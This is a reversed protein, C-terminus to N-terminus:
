GCSGGIVDSMGAAVRAAFVECLDPMIACFMPAATEFDAAVQGTLTEGWAIGQTLTRRMDQAWVQSNGYNGPLAQVMDPVQGDWDPIYPSADQVASLCPALGASIKAAQQETLAGLAAQFASPQTISFAYLSATVDAASPKAVGQAATGGAVGTLCAAAILSSRIM